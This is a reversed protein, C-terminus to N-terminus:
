PGNGIIYVNDINIKYYRCLASTIDYRTLPGLGKIPELMNAIDVIIEEFTNNEYSSINIEKLLDHLVGKWRCHDIAEQFINQPPPPSDMRTIERCTRSKTSNMTDEEKKLIVFKKFIM